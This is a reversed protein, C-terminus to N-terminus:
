PVSACLLRSVARMMTGRTGSDESSGKACSIRGLKETTVAGVPRPSAVRVDNPSTCSKSRPTM